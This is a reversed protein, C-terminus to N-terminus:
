PLDRLDDDDSAAGAPELERRLESPPKPAVGADVNEEDVAIAGVDPLRQQVFHRGAGEVGIEVFDPVPRVTMAPAEPEKEAGQLVDVPLGALNHDRGHVVLVPGLQEGALSDRVVVQYHRDARHRVVESNRADTRVACEEVVPLIRLPETLPQQVVAQSRRTKPRRAARHIRCDLDGDDPAAGRADLKGGLEVVSRPRQTAVSQLVEVLAPEPDRQEFGSWPNQRCQRLFKRGGRVLLEFAQTHAYEDVRSHGFDVPFAHM